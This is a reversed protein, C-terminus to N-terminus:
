STVGAFVFTLATGPGNCLMDILLLPKMIDQEGGAALGTSDSYEPHATRIWGLM